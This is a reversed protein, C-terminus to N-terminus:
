VNTKWIYNKVIKCTFFWSKLKQLYLCNLWLMMSARWSRLDKKNLISMQNYTGVVTGTQSKYRPNDLFLFICTKHEAYSLSVPKTHHSLSYIQSITCQMKFFNSEFRMRLPKSHSVNKTSHKVENAWLLARHDTSQIFTDWLPTEPSHKHSLCHKAPRTRQHTHCRQTDLLCLLSSVSWPKWIPHSPWNRLSSPWEEEESHKHFM